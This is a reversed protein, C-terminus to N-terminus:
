HIENHKSCSPVAGSTFRSMCINSYYLNGFGDFYQLRAVIVASEETSLIYNVDPQGLVKDSMVTFYGGGGFTSPEPEPMGPKTPVQPAAPTPIPPPIGPPVVIESQEPDSFSKDGFIAFWQDADQKATTGIFIKGVIRLKLAPSKGYDILSINAWMRQGAQISIEPKINNTWVYPRQDIQFQKANNNIAERTLCAQWGTIGAYVLVLFAAVKTWFLQRKNHADAKSQEAEHQEKLDQVLDIQVGPEIYVHRNTTEKNGGDQKPNPHPHKEKM